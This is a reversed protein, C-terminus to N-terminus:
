DGVEKDDNVNLLTVQQKNSIGLEIFSHMTRASPLTGDYAMLIKRIPKYSKPVAIVPQAAHSLYGELTNDDQKAGYKFLTRLGM